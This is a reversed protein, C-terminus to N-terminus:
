RFDSFFGCTNHNFRYMRGFSLRAGDIISAHDTKDTIVADDKGVLTAITGLNAQFGTTFVVAKEKGVFDALRRELEM